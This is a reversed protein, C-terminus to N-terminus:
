GKRRGAKGFLAPKDFLCVSKWIHYYGAYRVRSPPMKENNSGYPPDFYALDVTLNPVLDFTDCQHVQHEESSTFVDPVKLSLEGYSRPSWERLYSAFHGLSSDVRDLALMLSTLAVSKDIANLSLADIEQRIADLKRTFKGPSRAGMKNFQTAEM